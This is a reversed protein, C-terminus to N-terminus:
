PRGAAGGTAEAVIEMVRRPDRRAPQRLATSLPTGDVFEMVLYDLTGGDPLADQGYDYVQVIGPHRLAAMMRAETRFRTIFAADAVLSPLLVKVAVRRQLSPDIGRWVEGMGGTAILEELLYRGGLEAGPFLM